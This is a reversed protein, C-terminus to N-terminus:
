APALTARDRAEARTRARRRRPEVWRFCAPIWTVALLTAGGVGGAIAIALPPWFEGGALLLPVFGAMTTLTTSVVHRSARLVVRTIADPDGTHAEEDHVLSALVVIADNIAVGILGMTGVIAMFGFPHGFVRLALLSLGASLVAVVGIAVAYRFSQFSLVLTALMLVMLVGASSLLNGVAEDREAAEGGWEFRIGAPPHIGARELREQFGRLAIEPLLGATLFGQITNVREGNWHPISSVEPSLQLDGLNDLSTWGAGSGARLGHALVDEVGRRQEEAVRVRIPLEETAELMSGGVTGDLDSRLKDALRRQSWGVRRALVEDTVFNLQAEREGLKARTHTVGPVAALERRVAAGLEDLRDLDDGFIRLEVPAEFPPGQELQKTLFQAEPFAADLEDQLVHLMERSADPSACQVMAQAFFPAGDQAELMNYFFKPASGGLTWTTSLVEPHALIRERAAEVVERTGQISTSSSLRLEIAFQDRDAPPFFQEELHRAQIFGAIPLALSVAVALLPHSVLLRIGKRYLGELFSSSFGTRWFRAKKTREGPSDFLGTLAPVVTLALFLSSLLALIVSIAISGVFEGAPGPMLVLPLFALVTTLTSGLLPVALERVSAGISELRSKGTGLRHRVEDVMVIANDILLGLAIILGTVSMQHLPVGLFRLGSLVMLVALPLAAGVLVAARWGLTVFLVGVVLLAGLGLNQTLGNLRSETYRAQEFILETEIGRSVDGAFEEFVAKARRTWSDVRQGTQMRTGVLIGPKGDILAMSGTPTVLGRRVEGLDGVLISQGERGYEVATGRIDDLSEVEGSVEVLLDTGRGRLVGAAVKADRAEIARAVDTPTLGLSALRAPDIDVRIEEEPKGYGDVDRTGPLARWRDELEEAWRRLVGDSERGDGWRLGAILTFASIEFREFDPESAGPPLVVRADDLRDRVRSWVPSADQVEDVLELAVISVGARSVSTMERLEQVEALESELKETVLAEVREADAGPFFTTVLANRAVIEPDEARPLVALSALGSVTILLLLLALLRRNRFFLTSM